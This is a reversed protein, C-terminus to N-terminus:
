SKGGGELADLRDIINNQKDTIEILTDKFNRVTSIAEQTMELITNYTM